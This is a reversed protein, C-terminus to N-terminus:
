SSFGIHFPQYELGLSGLFFISKDDVLFSFDFEKSSLTVMNRQAFLLKLITNNNEVSM